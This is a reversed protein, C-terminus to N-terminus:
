SIMETSDTIFRYTPSTNQIKTGDWINPVSETQTMTHRLDAKGERSVCVDM